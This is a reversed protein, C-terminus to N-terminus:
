FHMHCSKYKAYFHLIKQMRVPWFFRRNNIVLIKKSSQISSAAGSVLWQMKKCILDYHKSYWKQKSVLLALKTELYKKLSIQFPDDHFAVIQIIKCVSHWTMFRSFLGCFLGVTLHRWPNFLEAKDQNAYHTFIGLNQGLGFFDNLIIEAVM